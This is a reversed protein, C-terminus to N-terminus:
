KQAAQKKFAEYEEMVKEIRPTIVATPLFMSTTYVWAIKAWM